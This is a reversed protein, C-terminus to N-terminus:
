FGDHNKVANEIEEALPGMGTGTFMAMAGKIKCIEKSAEREM